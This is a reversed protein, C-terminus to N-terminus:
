AAYNALTTLGSKLENLDTGHSKLDIRTQTFIRKEDGKEAVRNRM